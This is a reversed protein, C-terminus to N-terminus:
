TAVTCATQFSKPTSIWVGNIKCGKFLEELNLLDCNMMPRASYASDHFYVIGKEHAEWCDKPLLKKMMEKSPIEALYANQIHSLRPDKNGNELAVDPDVYLVKETETPNKKAREKDIKYSSYVRAVEPLYRYLYSMVTNEIEEVEIIEENQNIFEENINDVLDDIVEFDPTGIQINAAIIANRIKKPNYEFLGKKKKVKM